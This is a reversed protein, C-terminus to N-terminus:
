TVDAVEVGAGPTQFIGLRKEGFLHTEENKETFFWALTVLFEFNWIELQDMKPVPSHNGPVTTGPADSPSSRFTM